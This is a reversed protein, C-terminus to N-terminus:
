WAQNYVKVKNNNKDKRRKGNAFKWISFFQITKCLMYIVIPIAFSAVFSATVSLSTVMVLIFFLVFMLITHEALKTGIDDIFMKKKQKM